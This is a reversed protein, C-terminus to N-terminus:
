LEDPVPRATMTRAPTRPALYLSPWRFLPKRKRGEAKASLSQEAATQSASPEELEIPPPSTESLTADVMGAEATEEEVEELVEDPRRRAKWDLMQMIEEKVHEETRTLGFDVVMGIGHLRLDYRSRVLSSWWSAASPSLLPTTHTSEALIPAGGAPVASVGDWNMLPDEHYPDEPVLPDYADTGSPRVSATPNTQKFALRGWWSPARTEEAQFSTTTSSPEVPAEPTLDAETDQTRSPLELAADRRDRWQRLDEKVRKDSIKGDLYRYGSLVPWLLRGNNLDCWCRNPIPAAYVIETENKQLVLQGEGPLSSNTTPERIWFPTTADPFSLSMFGTNCSSSFVVVLQPEKILKMSAEDLSPSVLISCYICPKLKVWMLGAIMIMLIPPATPFPLLVLFLLFQRLCMM